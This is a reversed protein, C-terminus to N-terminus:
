GRVAPRDPPRLGRLTQALVEELVLRIGLLERGLVAEGADMGRVDARRPTVVRGRHAVLLVSWRPEGGELERRVRRRARRRGSRHGDLLRSRKGGEEIWGGVVSARLRRGTVQSDVLDASDDAVVAHTEAEVQGVRVLVQDDVGLVREGLARLEIVRVARSAVASLPLAPGARREVVLVTEAVVVLVVVVAADLVAEGAELVDAADHGVPAPDGSVPVRVGVRGSRARNHVGRRQQARRLDVDEDLEDALPLVVVRQWSSELTFRRLVKARSKIPVSATKM